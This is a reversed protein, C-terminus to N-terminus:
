QVAGPDGVPPSWRCFALPPSSKTASLRPCLRRPFLSEMARGDPPLHAHATYRSLTGHNRSRFKEGRRLLHVTHDGHRQPWPTTKPGNHRLGTDRLRHELDPIGPDRLPPRSGTGGHRRFLRRLGIQGRVTFDPLCSWMPAPRDRAVKRRFGTRAKPFHRHASVRRCAHVATRPM